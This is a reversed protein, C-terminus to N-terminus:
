LLQRAVVAPAQIKGSVGLGFIKLCRDEILSQAQARHPMRRWSTGTLAPHISWRQLSIGETHRQRLPIRKRKTSGTVKTEKEAGQSSTVLVQLLAHILIAMTKREYFYLRRLTCTESMIKATFCMMAYVQTDCCIVRERPGPTQCSRDSQKPKPGLPGLFAM